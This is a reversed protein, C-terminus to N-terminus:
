VNAKIQNLIEYIKVINSKYTRQQAYVIRKKQMEISNYYSSNKIVKEFLPVM